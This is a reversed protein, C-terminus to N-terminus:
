NVCAEPVDRVLEADTYSSPCGWGRTRKGNVTNVGLVCAVQHTIGYGTIGLTVGVWAGSALLRRIAEKYLAAIGEVYAGSLAEVSDIVVARMPEGEEQELKKTAWVYSQAVVKGQYRVVWAAARKHHWIAKACSSAAGHLHQCCNTYLGLMMGLPDDHPVSEMVWDGALDIEEGRVRIAPILKPGSNEYEGMVEKYYDFRSRSLGVEAAVEALREFEPEVVGYRLKAAANRLQALTEPVEGLYERVEAWKDALNLVHAGHKAVLRVWASRQPEEFESRAVLLASQGVDHLAILVWRDGLESYAHWMGEVRKVLEKRYLRAAAFAPGIIEYRCKAMIFRLWEQKLGPLVDSPLATDQGALALEAKQRGSLGWGEFEWRMRLPLYTLKAKQWNRLKQVRAVEAWNLEPVHYSHRGQPLLPLDQIAAWRLVPSLRGLAITANMAMQPCHASDGWRRGRIYYLTQSPRVGKPVLYGAAVQRRFKPGDKAGASFWMKAVLKPHPGYHGMADWGGHSMTGDPLTDGWYVPQTKGLRKGEKTALVEEAILFAKPDCSHNTDILAPWYRLGIKKALGKARYKQVLAERALEVRRLVEKRQAEDLFRWSCGYYSQSEDEILAQNYTRRSTRAAMMALAAQNTEKASPAFRAANM